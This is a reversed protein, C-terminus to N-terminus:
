KFLVLKASHRDFLRMTDIIQYHEGALSASDAIYYAGPHVQDTLRLIEGRVAEIHFSNVDTAGVPQSITQRFGYLPYGMSERAIRESENKYFQRSALRGPLAIWNIGIRVVIMVLLMRMLRNGTDQWLAWTSLALLCFVVTTKWGIGDVIRTKPHLLAVWSGITVIISLTIWIREVWLRPKDTPQSYEYYMYALVTFVLPLLGILYRAYVQPSSWYVWCNALFVVANFAIFSNARIIAVIGRRFLLVLLLLYPVFHYIMEFPFTILHLLTQGIGFTVVTRKASEDFLVSAVSGLPIQNRTFYAMYYSGVIVLFLGIGAWHAAQLLRNFQRTYAFWSILTLGQFVVSPLGKTLFGLATLVYTSLFLPWYRQQRDFHYVLMMSLYTLLAFPIDISSWLSDYILVRGNTLVMLAVVFAFWGSKVAAVNAYHRVFGFVTLGLLALSVIVPFRVTFSSYSEFLRYFVVLIWNYLPPKNFYLEGNLTPTIYDGSLIMELAVLARRPEDSSTDLPLYGLHSVLAVLLMGVTLIAWGVPYRVFVQQMVASLKM